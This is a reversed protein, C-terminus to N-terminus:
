AGAAALPSPRTRHGIEAGCPTVGKRLAARFQSPTMGFRSKFLRNFTVYDRFGHELAIVTIKNQAAGQALAARCAELRLEQIARTPTTGHQEFLLFLARRSLCVADALREVSLGPDGLHSRIFQHAQRFRDQVKASQGGSLPRLPTSALWSHAAMEDFALHEDSLVGLAKIRLLLTRVLTRSTPDEALQQRAQAYVSVSYLPEGRSLGVFWRYLMNYRLQEILQSDSRIGYLLQLLLIRASRWDVGVAFAEPPLQSRLTEVAERVVRLPHGSAPFHEDVGIASIELDPSETPGAEVALHLTMAQGRM